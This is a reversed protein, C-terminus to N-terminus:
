NNLKGLIGLLEQHVTDVRKKSNVKTVGAKNALENLIDVYAIGLEELDSPKVNAKQYAESPSLSTGLHGIHNNRILNVGRTIRKVSKLKATLGDAQAQDIYGKALAEKILNPVTIKKEGDEELQYLGVILSRTRSVIEDKFFTPFSQFAKPFTKRCTSSSLHLYTEYDHLTKGAVALATKLKTKFDTVAM